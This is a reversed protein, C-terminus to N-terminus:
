DIQSAVEFIVEYFICDNQTLVQLPVGLTSFARAYKPHSHAISLADPRATHIASHILFAARNLNRIPGSEELIAGTHDVRIYNEILPHSHFLSHLSVSLLLLDPTILSFHVGFPNVWFADKLIPDQSDPTITM